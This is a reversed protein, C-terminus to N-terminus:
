LATTTSKIKTRAAQLIQTGPILGPNGGTSFRPTRVMPGSPFEGSLQELSHPFDAHTSM